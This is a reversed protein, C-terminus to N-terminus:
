KVLFFEVFMVRGFTIPNEGGVVNLGNSYTYNINYIFGNVILRAM